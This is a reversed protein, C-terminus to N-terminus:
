KGRGKKTTNAEAQKRGLDILKQRNREIEHRTQEYENQLGQEGREMRDALASATRGLSTLDSKTQKIEGSIENKAALVIQLRDGASAM